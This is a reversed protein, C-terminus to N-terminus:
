GHVEKYWCKERAKEDAFYKMIEETKVAGLLPHVYIDSDLHTFGQEHMWSVLIAPSHQVAELVEIETYIFQRREEAEQILFDLVLWTWYYVTRAALFVILGIYLEPYEM